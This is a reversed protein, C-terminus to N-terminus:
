KGYNLIKEVSDIGADQSIRSGFFPFKKGYQHMNKGLYGTSGRQMSPTLMVFAFLTGILEYYNIIYRFLLFYQYIRIERAAGALGDNHSM